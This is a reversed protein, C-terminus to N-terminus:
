LRKSNSFAASQDSVDLRQTERVKHSQLLLGNAHQRVAPGHLFLAADKLDGVDGHAINRLTGLRDLDPAVNQGAGCRVSHNLTYVDRQPLDAVPLTGALVQLSLYGRLHQLDEHPIFPPHFGCATWRSHSNEDDADVVLGFWDGLWVFKGFTQGRPAM